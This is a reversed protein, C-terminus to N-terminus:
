YRSFPKGVAKKYNRVNRIEEALIVILLAIKIVRLRNM